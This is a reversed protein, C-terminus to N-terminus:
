AKSWGLYNRVRKLYAAVAAPGILCYFAKLCYASIALTLVLGLGTAVASPSFFSIIFAGIVMTFTLGGVRLNRGSWRFGSLRRALLNTLGLHFLYMTAFAMGVGPLGRFHIGLGIMSLYFVNTGFETWFYLGGKAKALLLFALPWTVVRLFTGLVQWRLVEFAAVFQASYLVQLVFPGVALMGLIGPTALLLGVEVQANILENSRRDDHVVSSLHPYFDAGMAGLIFGVYVNSLTIAAEYLGTAGIGLLRAIMVRVLYMTAMTTLGSLMFVFGLKLLWRAEHAIVKRTLPVKAIPIKRMYWWSMLLATGAIAVLYPVVGALGMLYLIPVGVLTGLASGIITARALDGIRRKGRIMALQAGSVVTFLPVASLLAMANAYQTSGLTLQAIQERFAFFVLAGAVALLLAIRQLTIATTAVKAGDGSGDAEAIQRVGSAPLGAAAITGALSTASNLLGILGLGTPGLLVAAAKSQIVRFIVNLLSSGGIITTARLIQVQSRGDVSNM